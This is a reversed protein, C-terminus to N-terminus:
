LLHMQEKEEKTRLKTRSKCFLRIHLQLLFSGRSLLLMLARRSVAQAGKTPNMSDMDDPTVSQICVVLVGFLVMRSLVRPVGAHLDFPSAPSSRPSNMLSHASFYLSCTCSSVADKSKHKWGSDHSLDHSLCRRQKTNGSCSSRFASVLTPDLTTLCYRHQQPTTESLRKHNHRQKTLSVHCCQFCGRSLFSSLPCFLLSSLALIIADSCSLTLFRCLLLTLPRSLHRHPSPSPPPTHICTHTCRSRVESCAFAKSRSCFIEADVLESVSRSPSLWALAGSGLPRAAAASASLGTVRSAGEGKKLSPFRHFCNPTHDLQFAKWRGSLPPTALSPM